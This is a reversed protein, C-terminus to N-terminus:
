AVRRQIASRVGMHLRRLRRYRDRAARASCLLCPKYVWGGCQRCRSPLQSTYDAASPDASERGHLGRKGQAIAGVTGRSVGLKRAIARQSLRGEDLLRRIELVVELSLM